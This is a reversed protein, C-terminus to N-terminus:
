KKWEDHIGVSVECPVQKLLVQGAEIMTEQLLQQAMEGYEEPCEVIIEDHIINVLRITDLLGKDYIRDFLMRIAIKLIEGSGGQIPYNKGNRQAFGVSARDKKNVWIKILRGTWLRIQGTNVASSAASELYAILDKYTSYYNELHQAAEEVSLGSQLAVRAPGAGYLIAFNINKAISRKKNFEEGEPTKDWEKRPPTDKKFPPLPLKFMLATTSDHFDHGSLFADIYGQEGSFEAAVRLEIQSFDGGVFVYGKNPAFCSRYEQLRPINQLNPKNCSYRATTTGQPDYDAHIRGTIPHIHKNPFEEGYSSKRKDLERFELLLPIVKFQNKLPALWPSGTTKSEKQTKKDKKTPLTIGYAELYQAIQKPSTISTSSRGSGLPAGAFLGQQKVAGTERFENAILEMVEMRRGRMKTDVKIWRERVMPFGNLEMSSIPDITDFDLRAAERLGLENIADILRDRLPILIYADLAAYKLQEQTLDGSWNSRQLEKDLEKELLEEAVASLKSKGIHQGCKTLRFAIEADFLKGFHRVGLHHRAMKIDFKANYAIKVPLPSELLDRLAARVRSSIKFNDFLYVNGNKDALQILRLRSCYPDLGGRISDEWGEAWTTETDWGVIKESMLLEIGSLDDGDEYHIVLTKELTKDTIKFIESM